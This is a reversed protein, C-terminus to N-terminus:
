IQEVRQIDIINYDIFKCHGYYAMKRECLEIIDGRFLEGREVIGELEELDYDFVVDNGLRKFGKKLLVERLRCWRYNEGKDKYPADVDKIHIRGKYLNAL